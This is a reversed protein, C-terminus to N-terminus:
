PKPIRVGAWLSQCVTLPALSLLLPLTSLLPLIKLSFFNDNDFSSCNAFPVGGKRVAEHRQVTTRHEASKKKKKLEGLRLGSLVLVPPSPPPAM